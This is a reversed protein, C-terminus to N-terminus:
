HNTANRLQDAAAGTWDLIEKRRADTFGADAHLLTYKKPPMEKYDIVENVRDLQKAAALPEDPWESFNLHQRGENVDSAILWSVPAIRAYFPWTTEHSHCDYCAARISAAVGPPPSAAALFDRQVPPNNRPPNFLQLAALVVVAGALVWKLRKKM